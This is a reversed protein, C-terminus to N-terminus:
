TFSLLSNLPPAPYYEIGQVESLADGPSLVAPAIEGQGAENRLRGWTRRPVASPSDSM